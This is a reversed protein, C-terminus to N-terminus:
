LLSTAEEECARALICQACVATASRACHICIQAFAACPVSSTQLPCLRQRRHHRSHFFIRVQRMVLRRQPYAAPIDPHTGKRPDRPKCGSHFGGM